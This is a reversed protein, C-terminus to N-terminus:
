TGYRDVFASLVMKYDDEEGTDLAYAKGDFLVSYRDLLTSGRDILKEYETFKIPNDRLFDSLSISAESRHAIANGRITVLKNVIPDTSRVAEIDRALKETEFRERVFNRRMAQESLDLLDPVAEISRLWNLLAISKTQQDYLRALSMRASELHAELTLAWFARARNFPAPDKSIERWLGRYLCYHWSASRLEHSIAKRWESFERKTNARKKAM